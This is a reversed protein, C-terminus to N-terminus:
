LDAASLCYTQMLKAIMMARTVATNQTEGLFSHLKVRVAAIYEGNRDHLPLTVLVAGRERGFSVTGERIAAAEADTGSQGVEAAEKSALVRPIGNTALTYVRLGMIRPEQQMVANVMLQAGPIRPTYNVVADAFYSVSDSKTWFGLKGEAFSNDGLAPMVPRDDLWLNIQNGECQVALTHWGGAGLDVQPGLPDSRVGNVVKYFRVNRGLASVRAVYFNSVNQFRFVVGAMEEAVGSVIKFRTSFKFNRFVDGDYVLIPYREDTLDQSTQALVGRRTVVPANTTLPTLAPPVEDMVIKWTGPQGGGFRVSSFNTPTAGASYDSFSFRLEAGAASWALLVGALLSLSRM